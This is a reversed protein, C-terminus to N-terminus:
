TPTTPADAGPFSAIRAGLIESYKLMIREQQIMRTRDVLCAVFGKNGEIFVLLETLRADLEAKEDIVRQQYAPRTPMAIAVKENWALIAADLRRKWTLATTRM